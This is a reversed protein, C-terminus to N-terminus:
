PLDPRIAHDAAYRELMRASDLGLKIKLRERYTGVTKVSIQLQQALSQLTAGSGILRLVQLERASLGDIDSRRDRQHVVDALLAQQVAEAVHVAGAVVRDLAHAVTELPEAKAVYGHAGARIARPGWALEDSSSYVIIRADPLLTRLDEIMAIGNGDGLTLDTIIVDPAVQEALALATAVSTAAGVIAYRADGEFLLTLGTLVIPHDDVILLRFLGM